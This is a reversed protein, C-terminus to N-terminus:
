PARSTAPAAAPPASLVLVLPTAPAAATASAAAPEGAGRTVRERVVVSAGEPPVSGPRTDYLFDVASTTVADQLNVWFRRRSDVDWFRAQGINKPGPYPWIPVRVKAVDHRNGGFDIFCSVDIELGVPGGLSKLREIEKGLAEYIVEWRFYLTHADHTPMVEVRM